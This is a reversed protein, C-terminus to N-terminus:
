GEAEHVPCTNLTHPNQQLIGDEDLLAIVACRAFFAERLCAFREGVIGLREAADLACEGHRVKESATM